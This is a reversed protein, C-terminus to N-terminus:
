RVSTAVELTRTDRSAKGTWTLTVTMRRRTSDLVASASAAGPLAALAQAQWASASDRAVTSNCTGTAPVTYCDVNGTDVLLTSLLQDGLQSAVLRQQAETSQAILGAELKAMGLLGVALLTIGVLGDLLSFGRQAPWRAASRVGRRETRRHCTAPAARGGAQTNTQANM